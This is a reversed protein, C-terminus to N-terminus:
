PKRSSRRVLEALLRRDERIRRSTRSYLAFTVAAFLLVIGVISFRVIAGLEELSRQNAATINQLDPIPSFDTVRVLIPAARNGAPDVATVTITNAGPVLAVTTRWHGSADPRVEQDDVLVTANPDDVSGRVLVASANTEMGDPPYDVAVVPPRTDVRVTALLTATHRAADVAVLIIPDLGDPLTLSTSFSGDSAVPVPNGNVFFAVLLSDTVTGSVLVHDDNTLSVTPSTLRIQPVDSDVIVVLGTANFNGVSDAAAIQLVNVGEPLALVVSWTGNPAVVVSYGNVTVFAGFASLGSVRVLNTPSVSLNAPTLVVLPPPVTDSVITVVDVALNGLRDTANVFVLNAGESLSVPFSFSGNAGAAAGNEFGSPLVTATVTIPAAGAFYPSALVATGAVLVVSTPVAPYAPSTVRLLPPTTDVTFAWQVSSAGGLANAVTANALHPGNRLELALPLVFVSQNFTGASSLNMGDLFLYVLVIPGSANSYAVSIVPTTTNVLAGDAPNEGLILPGPVASAAVSSVPPCPCSRTLPMLAASQVILVAAVLILLRRPLVTM